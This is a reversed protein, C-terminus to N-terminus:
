ETRLKRPYHHMFVEVQRRLIEGGDSALGHELPFCDKELVYIVQDGRHSFRVADARGDAPFWECGRRGYGFNCFRELVELAPQREEGSARCTGDHIAHLPARGPEPGTLQEARRLPFFFPCPM